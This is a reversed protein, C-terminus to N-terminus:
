YTKTIHTVNNQLILVLKRRCEVHLKSTTNNNNDNKKQKRKQSAVYKEKKNIIYKNRKKNIIKHTVLM